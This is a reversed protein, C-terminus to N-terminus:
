LNFKRRSNQKISSILTIQEPAKCADGKQFDIISMQPNRVTVLGQYGQFSYENIEPTYAFKLNKAMDLEKYREAMSFAIGTIKDTIKFRVHSEDAGVFKSELINISNSACVMPPNAKGTPELIKAELCINETPIDLELDINLVPSFPHKILLESIYKDLRDRFEVIKSFDKKFSVGAAMPHGGGKFWLDKTLQLGEFLAFPHGEVGRGSGKYCTEGTTFVFTPKNYSEKLRGAVLGILGEPINKHVVIIINYKDLNHEQIIQKCEEVYQITLEKRKENLDYIKKAQTEKNAIEKYLLNSLETILIERSNVKSLDISFIKAIKNIDDNSLKESKAKRLANLISRYYTDDLLEVAESCDSLRGSSNICPVIQYYLSTSTFENTEFIERLKTLGINYNKNMRILGEKVLIRNEDTLDMMDGVTAIAVLPLLTYLYDLKIGLKTYLAILVKWTLSGGCLNKNKYNCEKLKANLVADANPIIDPIDHHDTIIVKLGSDKAKKIENVASIGNDVTYIINCKNKIAKDVAYMSLGYGEKVRHPIHIVSKIGIHSFGMKTILAANMGDSDYDASIFVTEKNKRAEILIDIAKDIDHLEFPSYLDRIDGYIYKNAKDVTDIKRNILMKAQLETIDSQIILDKILNPDYETEPTKWLLSM